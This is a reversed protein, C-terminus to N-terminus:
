SECAIIHGPLLLARIGDNRYWKLCCTCDDITASEGTETRWIINLYIWEKWKLFIACKGVYWNFM